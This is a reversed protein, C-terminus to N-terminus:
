LGEKDNHEMLTLEEIILNREHDYSPKVNVVTYTKTERVGYIGEITYYSGVETPVGSYNYVEQKITNM